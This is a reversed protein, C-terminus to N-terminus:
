LYRLKWWLYPLARNGLSVKVEIAPQTTASAATAVPTWIVGLFITLGLITTLCRYIWRSSRPHPSAPVRLFQHEHM